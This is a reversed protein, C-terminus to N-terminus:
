EGNSLKYTLLGETKVTKRITLPKASIIELYAGSCSREHRAILHNYFVITRAETNRM